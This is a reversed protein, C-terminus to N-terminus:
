GTSARVHSKAADVAHEADHEADDVATAADYSPLVKILYKYYM